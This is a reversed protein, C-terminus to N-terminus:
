GSARYWGQTGYVPEGLDLAKQILQNNREQRGDLCKAYRKMLVDVSNGAREAVDTPDVGGNLWTSLAAHRLDYATGALPSAVQRPTLAFRRAEKWARSYTTSGLVGGRENTFIRGDPATGFEEIHARLIRVLHPPIPVERVDNRDRQKLGRTDHLEHSDTYKKGSAPRTEALVLTGWGTEPLYCDSARLGVAEAPRMGAYYLTAFFALLRRGRARNWSGVYTLATLLEQVQAPNAVVRRDVVGAYAVKKRKIGKFPNSALVKLDAAYELATNNVRRRRLTTERAAPSGDLKTGLADWLHQGVLPEVLDAVPRTQSTLLKIAPVKSGPALPFVRCGRDAAALAARLAPNLTTNM